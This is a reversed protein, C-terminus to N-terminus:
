ANKAEDLRLPPNIASSIKTVIAEDLQQLTPLDSDSFIKNGEEDEAKEIVAMINLMGMDFRIDMPNGTQIRSKTRIKEGELVTVPTFFIILKEGAVEIEVSKRRERRKAVHDYFKEKLNM